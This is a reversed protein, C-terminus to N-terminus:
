LKKRARRQAAPVSPAPPDAAEEALLDEAYGPPFPNGIEPLDELKEDRIEALEKEAPASASPQQAGGDKENAQGGATSEAASEQAAMARLLSEGGFQRMWYDVDEQLLPVPPREPVAAKTQNRKQRQRVIEAYWVDSDIAIARRRRAARQLRHDGSVVTLRRPASEHCILEEILSDADEYRVAFHVTLGRHHLTRPAGWPPNHADFVVIAHPLDRPDLSEALFNLLALRARELGHPGPGKAVVGVAYLLNYGDIILTM